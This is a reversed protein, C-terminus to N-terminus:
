TAPTKLSMLGQHDELTLARTFIRVDDIHGEFKGVYSIYSAHTFVDLNRSPLGSTQGVQAGDAYLTVTHSPYDYVGTLFHWEGDNMVSPADANYWTNNSLYVQFRPKGGVVRLRVLGWKHGRTIVACEDATTYRVWACFSVGMVDVPFLPEHADFSVGENTNDCRLSKDGVAAVSDLSTGADLLAGDYGNGSSDPVSDGAGLADFTYHLIEDDPVTVFGPGQPITYSAADTWWSTKEDVGDVDTWLDSYNLANSVLHSCMFDGCATVSDEREALALKVLEATLGDCGGCNSCAEACNNLADYDPAAAVRVSWAEPVAIVWRTGVDNEIIDLMHTTETGGSPHVAEWLAASYDQAASLTPMQLYIM